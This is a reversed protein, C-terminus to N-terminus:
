SRQITLKDVISLLSTRWLSLDYWGCGICGRRALKGQSPINKPWNEDGSYFYKLGFPFGRKGTQYCSRCVERKQLNRQNTLLQFEDRIESDTLRELSDRRTAEDWRIEPYKHDPILSTPNARKGEYVDISGLLKIIRTRLAPSWSEYGSIGGRPLPVMFIHTGVRGCNTCTRNKDTALTYGFEKLDQYRRAPNTNPPFACGTCSWKFEQLVDYFPKTVQARPKTRWFIDQEKRWEEFRSPHCFPAVTELHAKIEDETLLNTGTRRYEIPIWGEWVKGDDYEFVVSVYRESAKSHEYFGNVRIKVM